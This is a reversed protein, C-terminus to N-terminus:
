CPLIGIASFINKLMAADCSRPITLKIDHSLYLTLPTGSDAPSSVPAQPTIEIPIIKTSPQKKQFVKKYYSFQPVNLNHKKCFAVQSLHSAEWNAIVGRWRQKKSESRILQPSAAETSNAASLSM